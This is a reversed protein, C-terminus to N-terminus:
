FSHWLESLPLWVRADKIWAIHALLYTRVSNCIEDQKKIREEFNAALIDCEVPAIMYTTEAVAIPRISMHEPPLKFTETSLLEATLKKLGDITKSEFKGDHSYLNITPM